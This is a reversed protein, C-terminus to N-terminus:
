KAGQKQSKGVLWGYLHGDQKRTWIKYGWYKAGAFFRAREAIDDFEIPEGIITGDPEVKALKM